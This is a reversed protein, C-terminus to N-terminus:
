ELFIRALQESTVRLRSLLEERPLLNNRLGWLKDGEVLPVIEVPVGMALAALAGHYRQTVVLAARSVESLVDDVTQCEIVEAKHVISMLRHAVAKEKLTPQMLVIRVVDWHDKMKVSVLSFFEESSNARPVIVLASRHGQIRSHKAFFAFAPDFTLVPVVKPNWARVRALSAEDRVSIFCARRCVAKTIFEGLRTNFPGVGQFTLFIPKWFVWAVFAYSAWMCCASISEIDTFLTGGGYVIGRSRAIAWVPKWWSGFFSRVGLPLRPLEISSKPRASVIRWDISRFETVFYNRLAEDGINSDGFNGVLVFRM